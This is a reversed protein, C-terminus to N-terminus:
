KSIFFVFTFLFCIPFKQFLFKVFPLLGEAVFLKFSDMLDSFEKGFQGLAFADPDLIKSIAAYKSEAQELIENTVAQTRQFPTLEKVSKNVSQAYKRLAPDLRLVIGLEDLLEPEAKTAGRILRNFSDTLDRGLAISVNKAAVGLRELQDRSLGGATGIAVAQAAEKFSLM